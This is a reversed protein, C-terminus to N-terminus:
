EKLKENTALRAAQLVDGFEDPHVFAMRTVLNLLREDSFNILQAHEEEFTFEKAFELMAERAWEANGQCARLFARKTFYKSLGLFDM